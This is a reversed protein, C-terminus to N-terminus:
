VLDPKPKKEEPPKDPKDKNLAKFTSYEVGPYQIRDILETREKRWAKREEEFSNHLMSIHMFHIDEAEKQRFLMKDKEEAGMFLIALILALLIINILM